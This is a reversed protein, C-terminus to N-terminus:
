IRRDNELYELREALNEVIKELEQVKQELLVIYTDKYLGKMELVERVTM